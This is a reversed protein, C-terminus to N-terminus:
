TGLLGKYDSKFSKFNKDYLDYLSNFTDPIKFKKSVGSQIDGMIKKFSGNGGVTYDFLKGGYKEINKGWKAYGSIKKAIKQGKTLTKNYQDDNPREDKPLFTAKLKEFEILTEGPKLFDKCAIVNAGNYTGLITEHTRFGLTRYIESSIHETIDSNSVELESRSFDSLDQPFKILYDEGYYKIGLKRGSKGGYAKDNVYSFLDRESFDIRKM